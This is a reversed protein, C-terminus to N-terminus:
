RLEARQVRGDVRIAPAQETAHYQAASRCAEAQRRFHDFIDSM